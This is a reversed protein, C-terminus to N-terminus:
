RSLLLREAAELEQGTLPKAFPLARWRAARQEKPLHGILRIEAQLKDHARADLEDLRGALRRLGAQQEDTFDKVIAFRDELLAREDDPRNRFAADLAVLRARERPSARQWDFFRGMLADPTDPPRSPFGGPPPIVPARPGVPEPFFSDLRALSEFSNLFDFSHLSAAQAKEDNTLPARELSIPTSHVALIDPPRETAPAAAAAPAPAPAPAPATVTAPIEHRFWRSALLLLAVAAVAAAAIM